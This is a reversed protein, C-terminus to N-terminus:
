ERSADGDRSHDFRQGVYIYSPNVIGNTRALTALNVGYRNAISFLTEGPQVVHVTGGSGQAGALAPFLM